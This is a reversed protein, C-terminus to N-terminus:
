KTVKVKVSAKYKGCAATVTVTGAKKATLKGTAANISAIDKKDVSWTIKDPAVANEMDAKFTYSKKVKLSTVKKTLSLKPEADKGTVTTIRGSVECGRTGNKQIYDILVEELAGLEGTKKTGAFMDYGGGGAAIFDPMAVTYKETLSLDKGNIKVSIVRNGAKEEPNFKMEIGSVQM